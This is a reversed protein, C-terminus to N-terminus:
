RHGTLMTVLRRRYREYDRIVRSLQRAPVKFIQHEGDDLVAEVGVWALTPNLRDTSTVAFEFSRNPLLDHGGPVGQPSAHRLDASGEDVPLGPIAKTWAVGGWILRVPKSSANTVNLVVDNVYTPTVIAEKRTKPVPPARLELVLTSQVRRRRTVKDYFHKLGLAVAGSAVVTGLKELVDGWAM